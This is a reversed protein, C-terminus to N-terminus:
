KSGESVLKQNEEGSGKEDIKAKERTMGSFYELM